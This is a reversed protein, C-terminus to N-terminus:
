DKGRGYFRYKAVRERRSATKENINWPEEVPPPRFVTLVKKKSLAMLEEVTEYWKDLVESRKSPPNLLRAAVGPDTYLYTQGDRSIPSGPPNPPPVDRPDFSASTAISSGGGGGRGDWPLEKIAMTEDDSDGDDYLVVEEHQGRPFYRALDHSVEDRVPYGFTKGVKPRLAGGALALHSTESSAEDRAPHSAESPGEGRVPHSAQSPAEDSVPHSARGSAKDGVPHSAKSPAEDRVPPGAKGSAQDRVPRSAKRPAKNRDLRSAKSCAEDRVPQNVECPAEDSVPYSAKGTLTPCSVEHGVPLRAKASPPKKRSVEDSVAVGAGGLSQPGGAEAEGRTPDPSSDAVAAPAM